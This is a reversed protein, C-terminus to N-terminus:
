NITLNNVKLMQKANSHIAGSLRMLPALKVSSPSSSSKLGLVLGVMFRVRV